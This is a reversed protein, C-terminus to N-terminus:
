PRTKVTYVHTHTPRPHATPQPHAPSSPLDRVELQVSNLSVGVMEAVVAVKKWQYDDTSESVYLTDVAPSSKAAAAASGKSTPTEYIPAAWQLWETCQRVHTTATTTTTTARCITLSRVVSIDLPSSCILPSGVIRM